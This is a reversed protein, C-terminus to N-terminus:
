HDSSNTITRLRHLTRVLSIKFILMWFNEDAKSRIFLGRFLSYQMSVDSPLRRM